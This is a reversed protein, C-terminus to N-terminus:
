INITVSYIPIRCIVIASATYEGVLVSQTFILFNLSQALSSLAFGTTCMVCGVLVIPREGFRNVGFMLVPVAAIYFM